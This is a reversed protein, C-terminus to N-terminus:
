LFVLLALIHDESPGRRVGITFTCYEHSPPPVVYGRQTPCKINSVAIDNHVEFVITARRDMHLTLKGAVHVLFHYLPMMLSLAFCTLLKLLVVITFSTSGHIPSHTKRILFRLEMSYWRSFSPEPYILTTYQFSRWGKCFFDSALLWHDFVTEEDGEEKWSWPCLLWTCSSGGMLCYSYCIPNRRMSWYVPRQLHGLDSDEEPLSGVTTTSSLWTWFSLTAKDKRWWQLVMNYSM